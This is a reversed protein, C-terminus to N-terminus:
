GQPSLEMAWEVWTKLSIREKRPLVQPTTAVSSGVIGVSGLPSKAEEPITHFQM